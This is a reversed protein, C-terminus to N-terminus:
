VKVTKKKINKVEVQVAHKMGDEFQVLLTNKEPKALLQVGRIINGSAVGVNTSAINVQESGQDGGTVLEIIASEALKSSHIVIKHFLKGDQKVAFSRYTIPIIEEVEIEELSFGENGTTGSESGSEAEEWEETEEGSDNGTEEGIESGGGNGSGSGAGSSGGSGAGNGVSTGSGSEGGKDKGPKTKKKKKKKAKPLDIGVHGISVEKEPKGIEPPENGETTPPLTEKEPDTEDLPTGVEPENEPEEDPEEDLSSPIYLYDVVGSPTLEKKTKDIFIDNISRQIFDKVEDLAQKCEYQQDESNRYDWEAHAADEAELLIENGKDNECFFVGNFGYNTNNSKLQVQMRPKRQYSIYDNGEKSLKLFLTVEGVSPLVETIKRFKKPLDETNSVAEIYPLPNTKAIKKNEKIQYQSNVYDILSSSNITHQMFRKDDEINVVLKNHLIALWFNDIASKIIELVIAERNKKFADIGLLFVSSGPNYRRFAIPINNIDDVPLEQDNDSYYGVAQQKKGNFEHTCYSAIGEFYCKGETTMTSVLMARMMSVNYFSAKGFGYSGGKSKSGQKSSNGVSKVFSFFRSKRNNPDYDMGVTNSDCIELCPFEAMRSVKEVYDKMPGFKDRANKDNWYDICAGIRDEIKLLQPYRDIPFDHIRFSVVVPNNDDAAVDLSNQISERVLSDYPIKKFKDGVADKPGIEQGSEATGFHWYCGKDSHLNYDIM